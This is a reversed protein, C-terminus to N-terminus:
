IDVPYAVAMDESIEESPKFDGDPQRRTAARIEHTPRNPQRPNSAPSRRPPTPQRRPQPTTSAPKASVPADPQAATTADRTSEAATATLCGLLSCLALLRRLRM